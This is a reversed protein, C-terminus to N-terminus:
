KVIFFAYKEIWMIEQDSYEGNFYVCLRKFLDLQLDDECLYKLYELEVDSFSRVVTSMSSTVEKTPSFAYLQKSLPSSPSMGMPPLIIQQSANSARHLSFKRNMTPMTPIMLQIYAHMSKLYSHRLLWTIVQDFEEVISIHVMDANKDQLKNADEQAVDEDQLTPSSVNPISNNSNTPSLVLKDKTMAAFTNLHHAYNQASSFMELVHILSPCEQFNSQFENIRINNPLICSNCLSLITTRTIKPTVRILGYYLLHHVMSTILALSMNLERSMDQVSVFPSAMKLVLQVDELGDYPFKLKPYEKLTICADFPKVLEVAVPVPPKYGLEIWHNIRMQLPVGARISDTLQHLERALSSKEISSKALSTWDKSADKYKAIINLEQQMYQVRQEERLYTKTLISLFHAFPLAMQSVQESKFVLCIAFGSIAGENSIYCPLFIFFLDELELSVIKNTLEKKQPCLVSALAGASTDFVQQTMDQLSSSTSNEQQQQPPYVFIIQQGRIGNIVLIVSADLALANNATTPM